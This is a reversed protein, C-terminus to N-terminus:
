ANGIAMKYGHLVSVLRIISFIRNMKKAITKGDLTPHLQLAIEYFENMKIHVTQDVVVKM